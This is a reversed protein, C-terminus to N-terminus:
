VYYYPNYKYIRVRERDHRQRQHSSSLALLDESQKSISLLRANDRHYQYRTPTIVRNPKSIREPGFLCSRGMDTYTRVTSERSVVLACLIKCSEIRYLALTGNAPFLRKESTVTYIRIPGHSHPFLLPRGHNQCALCLLLRCLYLVTGMWIYVIYLSYCLPYLNLM